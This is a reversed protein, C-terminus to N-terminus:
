IFSFRSFFFFSFRVKQAAEARWAPSQLPRPDPLDARKMAAPASGGVGGLARGQMISM